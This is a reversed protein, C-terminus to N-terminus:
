AAASTLTVTVILTDGDEVSRSSAFNAAGYLTGSTGSAVSAVFAGAVTASANVEFEARSAANNVSQGSISGLTLAKRNGSYATVETWAGTSALTDGAAPAGAGKLGVFWSSIENGKFGADLLYDLGQNVVLNPVTERWKEAGDPGICQVDYISSARATGIEINM